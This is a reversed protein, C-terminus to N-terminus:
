AADPEPIATFIDTAQVHHPQVRDNWEQLGYGEGRVNDFLANHSLASAYSNIASQGEAASVPDIVILLDRASKRVGTQRLHQVTAAIWGSSRSGARPQSTRVVAFAEVGDGYVALAARVVKLKQFTRSAELEAELRREEARLESVLDPM